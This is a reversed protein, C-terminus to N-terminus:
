LYLQDCGRCQRHACDALRLGDWGLTWSTWSDSESTVNGVADRGYRVFNGFADTTKILRNLNDYAYQTTNGNADKVSVLNGAPDYTNTMVPQIAANGGYVWVFPQTTTILRNAEDYTMVTANGRADQRWLLNGAYDYGWRLSPSANQVGNEADYVAPQTESIKRDRADYGYDWEEFSPTAATLYNTVIRATVNGNLDYKTQTTPQKFYAARNPDSPNMGDDVAPQYVYAPRGATDYQTTTVNGLEDTYTYRLSTGTYGYSATKGDAFTILQPRDASDYGTQTTQNLADTVSTQNGVNDYGYNIDSYLAPLSQSPLQYQRHANTLRYLSDYTNTTVYGLADTVSTPKFTSSDFAHSGSNAPVGPAPQGYSYTTVNQSPDVVTALRHLGDYGFTTMNNNPDTVTDKGDVANPYTWSITEPTLVKNITVNRTSSLIRRLGDYIANSRSM